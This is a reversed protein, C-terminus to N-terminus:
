ATVSCTLTLATPAAGQGLFGFATNGDVTLAGNYDANTAAVSAAGSSVTASWASTISQGGPWNWGVRWGTTPSGSVNRVSIRAVFGGEWSGDLQYTATCQPKAQTYVPGMVLSSFSSGGGSFRYWYLTAPTLGTVTLAAAEAATYATAGGRQNQGMQADQFSGFLAVSAPHFGCALSVSVSFTLTTATAGTVSGSVPPLACTTSVPRSTVPTTAPADTVPPSPIPTATPDAAQATAGAGLVLVLGAM